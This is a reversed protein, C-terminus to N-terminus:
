VVLYMWKKLGKKKRKLYKENMNSDDDKYKYINDSM